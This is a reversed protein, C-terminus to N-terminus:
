GLFDVLSPQIVRAASALSAHYVNQQATLNVVVEALDIEENNARHAQLDVLARDLIAQATEVRTMRAGLLARAQIVSELGADVGGLAAQAGAADGALLADRLTILAGFAGGFATSGPVNVEVRSGIGIERELAGSDGAYNVATISGGSTTTTFAATQTRHGAFLYQGAYNSNGLQILQQLLQDVEEGLSALQQASIGPSGAQVALERARQLTETAGALASEGASLRALADSVARQHQENVAIDIRHAIGLSAASPDDSPRNVRRGTSLKEQLDALTRAGRNVNNLVSRYVQTNSV